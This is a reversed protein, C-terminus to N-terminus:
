PSVGEAPHDPRGGNCHSMWTIYCLRYVHHLQATQRSEDTDGPSFMFYSPLRRSSRPFTM